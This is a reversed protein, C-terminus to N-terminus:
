KVIPILASIQSVAKYIGFFIYNCKYHPLVALGSQPVGMVHTHYTDPCM